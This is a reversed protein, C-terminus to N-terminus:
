WLRYPGFTYVVNLNTNASPFAPYGFGWAKFWGAPYDGKGFSYGREAAVGWFVGQAAISWGPTPTQKSVMGTFGWGPLLSSTAALGLYPYINGASDTQAGGTLAFTGVVGGALAGWPSGGTFLWGALLGPAIGIPSYTLNFDKYGFQLTARNNTNSALNFQFSTQDNSGFNSSNSIYGLDSGAPNNRFNNPLITDLFFSSFDPTYIDLAGSAQWNYVPPPSYRAGLWHHSGWPGGYTSSEWFGKGWDGASYQNGTPDIYRLPNNLTYSYRNLAQPNSPDPVMSDPSIFRGLVPDYLRAGYNYLGTEPDEEQGTYKHKV